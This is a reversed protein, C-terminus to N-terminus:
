RRKLKRMVKAVLPQAEEIGLFLSAGVYTLLGAGSAGVMFLLAWKRNSLDLHLVGLGVVKCGVVVVSMVVCALATRTVMRILSPWHFGTLNPRLYRWMVGVKITKALAFGTAIGVNGLGLALGLFWSVVLQGASAVLGLWFPTRTDRYAYFIQLAIIELAYFIMGAAYADFAATVLIVSEDGFEGSKYLTTVVQPGLLFCIITLPAFVYIMMRSASLFAETVKDNQKHLAWDAVFPFMAIGLAYPLINVPTWVIKRAFDLSAATGVVIESAAWSMKFEIMDRAKSTLSGGLLPLMLHGLEGLAKDKFDVGPKILRLKPGLAILHTALKFIGGLIFGLAYGMPDKRGFGVSWIVIGLVIGLKQAVDGMAPSVFRKYSNLLVYTLSAMSTCFLGLMSGRVIHVAMDYKAVEVAYHARTPDPPDLAIGCLTGTFCMGLVGVIVLLIAQLTGTISATRWAAQEGEGTLRVRNFIPLLSHSLVEQPIYYIVQFVKEVAAAVDGMASTGFFHAVVMKQLMGGFRALFHVGMIAISVMGVGHKGGKDKTVQSEPEEFGPEAPLDSSFEDAM